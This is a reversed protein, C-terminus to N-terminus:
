SIPLMRASQTVTAVLTRDEDWLEATGSTYGGHSIAARTHQLIWESRAPHHLQMSIQLSVLFFMGHSGGVASHVAPGLIDGPIALLSPEWIGDVRPSVLFRFWSSTRAEGPGVDPNEWFGMNEAARFETQFHYPVVGMPGDDRLPRSRCESPEKVVPCEAGQFGITDHPLGYVATLVLDSRAEGTPDPDDPDLAWLRVMAQAGGRGQRLTEVQMAVPGTPIAQCYTSDATVLRLDPRDLGLGAARIAAAMTTGGFAFKIAWADPIVGHYRGPIGAVPHPTTDRLIDGPEPPRFTDSVPM